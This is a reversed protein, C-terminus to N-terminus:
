PADSLPLRAHVSFGGEPRTATRLEGGFLAVRERMGVLGHGTSRANDNAAGAGNDVVDVTVADHDRRIRVHACTAGAHKLTNTLAEQVIRYVSLELAPPLDDHGGELALDVPLGAARMTAALAELQAIGPQPALSSQEDGERLVGLLRRMEVLAERSSREIKELATSNPAEHGQARAGGAQLVVVSLNHSVIDHLERALRSREEAVAVSAARQHEAALTQLAARERGGHVFIGILWAALLAVAFFAGAWLESTRGSQINHDELAYVTYGAAFAALGLLARNRTSYAAVSYAAVAVALILEFGEASDGSAVSQTVMGALVLTAALLPTRRRWWLPLALLLPLASTLWKPGAVAGSTWVAWETTAAVAVVIAFDLAAAARGYIPRFTADLM